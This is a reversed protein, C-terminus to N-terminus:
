IAWCFRGSDLPQVFACAKMMAGLPSEPTTTHSPTHSGLIPGASDGSDITPMEIVGSAAVPTTDTPMYASPAAQTGPVQSGRWGGPSLVATQTSAVGVWPSAM